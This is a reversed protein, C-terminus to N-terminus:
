MIRLPSSKDNGITTIVGTYMRDVYEPNERILTQIASHNVAVVAQEKSVGYISVIEDSLLNCYIAKANESM